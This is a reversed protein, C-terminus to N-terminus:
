GGEGTTPPAIMTKGNIIADILIKMGESPEVTYKKVLEEPTPFAAVEESAARDNAFRRTVEKNRAILEEETMEYPKKLMVFGEDAFPNFNGAKCKAILLALADKNLQNMKKLEQHETFLVDYDTQLALLQDEATIESVNVIEDLDADGIGIM